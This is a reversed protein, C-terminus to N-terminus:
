AASVCVSGEWTTSLVMEANDAIWFGASLASAMELASKLKSIISIAVSFM